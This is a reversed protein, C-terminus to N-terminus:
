KRQLILASILTIIFGIVFVTMSMLAFSFLPNSFMAKQSEIEALKVDFEEPPLSDRMDKVTAAYYEEMFEPNLVETFLVDLLGFAIATILSILIGIVIAKKFSLKGENEQDRFHKIGFYVFGLSIVMSAYGIVEQASFSLDNLLYWSALFLLCITIASYIGYRLITKKM